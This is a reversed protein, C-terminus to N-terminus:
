QFGDGLGDGGECMEVVLPQKRYIFIVYKVKIFLDSFVSYM